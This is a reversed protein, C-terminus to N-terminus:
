CWPRSAEARELRPLDIATLTRAFAKLERLAPKPAGSADTIGFHM